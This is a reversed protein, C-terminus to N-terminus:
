RANVIGFGFFEGIKEPPAIHVLMYRSSTICAVIMIANPITLALYTVDSLSNFIRGEHLVGEVPIMGFFLSDQTISLQLVLLTMIVIIEVTLARKPGLRQDLFGGVFGGSVAFISAIIGYM